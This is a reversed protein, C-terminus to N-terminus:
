NRTNLKPPLMQQSKLSQHQPPIAESNYDEETEAISDEDVLEMCAVEVNEMNTLTKATNETTNTAEAASTTLANAPNTTTGADIQTLEISTVISDHEEALELIKEVEATNEKGEQAIQIQPLPNAEVTLKSHEESKEDTKINGSNNERAEIGATPRSQKKTALFNERLFQCDIHTAVVM